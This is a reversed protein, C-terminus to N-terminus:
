TRPHKVKCDCTEYSIFQKFSTIHDNTVMTQFIPKVLCTPQRVGEQDQLTAKSSLDIIPLNPKDM